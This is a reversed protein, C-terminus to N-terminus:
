TLVVIGAVVCIDCTEGFLKLRSWAFQEIVKATLNIFLFWVQLLRM